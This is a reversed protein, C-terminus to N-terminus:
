VLMSPAGYEFGLDLVVIRRLLKYASVANLYTLAARGRDTDSQTTGAQSFRSHRWRADSMPQRGLWINAKIGNLSRDTNVLNHSNELSGFLHWIRAAPNSPHDAGIETDWQAYDRFFDSQPNLYQQDVRNLRTRFTAQGRPLAQQGTIAYQIFAPFYNLELIHETVYTGGSNADNTVETNECDDPDEPGYHGANSNEELLRDGNRGAPYWLSEMTFEGNHFRITYKRPSGDRKSLQTGAGAEDENYPQGTEPDNDLDEDYKSLESLPLCKSELTIITLM